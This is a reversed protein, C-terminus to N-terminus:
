LDNTQPVRAKFSRKIKDSLDKGLVDELYANEWKSSAKVFVEDLSEEVINKEEATLGATQFLKRLEVKIALDRVEIINMVNM